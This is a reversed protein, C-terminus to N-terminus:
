LELVSHTVCELSLFNPFLPLVPDNSSTEEEEDLIAFRSRLGFSFSRSFYDEEEQNPLQDTIPNYQLSPSSRSFETNGNADISVSNDVQTSFRSSSPIDVNLQRPDLIDQLRFPINPPDLQLLFYDAVDFPIHPEPDSDGGNMNM